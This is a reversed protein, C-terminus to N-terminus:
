VPRFFSNSLSNRRNADYEHANRMVIKYFENNQPIEGTIYNSREGFGTRSEFDKSESYFADGKLLYFMDQGPSVGSRSEEESFFFIAMRYSASTGRIAELYQSWEPEDKLAGSDVLLSGLYEIGEGKPPVFTWTNDVWVADTLDRDSGLISGSADFVELETIDQSDFIDLSDQNETFM